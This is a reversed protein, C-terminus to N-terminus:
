SEEHPKALIYVHEREITGATKNRKTMLGRSKITDVLELQTRLGRLEFIRQLFSTTKFNKGCVQNDGVILVLKAGPKMRAVIADAAESMEQLYKGAIYARLPNISSVDDLIEGAGVRADLDIDRREALSFHERGINLRELNRLKAKPALGLWGLSLSSARIYKQAGAYPPSSVVLDVDPEASESLPARADNFIAYPKSNQPLREIRGINQSAVRLFLDRVNPLSRLHGALAEGKLRVPVSLRPDSTSLRKVCASFCVEMFSLISGSCVIRIANLLRGMELQCEESYWKGVDMVPSFRVAEVDVALVQEVALLLEKPDIWTTKVQAIQRALPNSDSGICRRGALIAELLVTGSGCFPDYVTGDPPCLQGANLFFLPINILLKAPYPHVLHTHRDIGAGLPVLKRFDVEIPNGRAKYDNLLRELEATFDWSTSHKQARAEGDRLPQKVQLNM